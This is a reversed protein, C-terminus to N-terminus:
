SLEAIIGMLWGKQEKVLYPLYTEDIDFDYDGYSKDDSAGESPKPGNM